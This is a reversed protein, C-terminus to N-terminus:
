NRINNVNLLFITMEHGFDDKKKIKKVLKGVALINNPM